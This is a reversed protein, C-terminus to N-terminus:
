RLLAEAKERIVESIKGKFFSLALPLKADFDVSSPNVQILGSLDFGQASFSFNGSNGNWDEKVDKLKDKQEEKLNSFLKKVRTLAEESSLQHPISIKLNSM